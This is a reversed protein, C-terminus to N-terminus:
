NLFVVIYWQLFASTGCNGPIAYTFLIIPSPGYIEGEALKILLFCPAAVFDWPSPRQVRGTVMTGSSSLPSANRHVGGPGMKHSSPCARPPARPEDTTKRPYGPPSLPPVPAIWNWAREGFDMGLARSTYRFPQRSGQGRSGASRTRIKAAPVLFPGPVEQRDPQLAVVDPESCHTRQTKITHNKRLRENTEVFVVSIVNRYFWM